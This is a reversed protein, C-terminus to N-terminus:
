ATCFLTTEQKTTGSLLTFHSFGLESPLLLFPSFSSHPFHYISPPLALSIVIHGMIRKIALHDTGSRHVPQVATTVSIISLTLAKALLKFNHPEKSGQVTFGSVKRQPAPKGTLRHPFLHSYKPSGKSDIKNAEGRWGCCSLDECLRTATKKNKKKARQSEVRAIRDTQSTRAIVM